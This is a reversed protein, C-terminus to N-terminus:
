SIEFSRFYSLTSVTCLSGPAIVTEPAWSTRREATISVLTVGRLTGSMMMIM